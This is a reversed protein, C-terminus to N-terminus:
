LTPARNKDPVVITPYESMPSDKQYPSSKSIEIQDMMSIIISTFNEKLKKYIDDYDQRNPKLQIM